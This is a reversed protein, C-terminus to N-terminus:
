AIMGGVEAPLMYATGVVHVYVRGPFNKIAKNLRLRKHSDAPVICGDSGHEGRGHIFFDDGRHHVIPQASFPSHIQLADATRQLWICEHFKPHNAIYHCLYHGPPLTGGRRSGHKKTTAQYSQISHEWQKPHTSGRGGGSYAKMHFTADGIKGSLIESPASYTLIVIAPKGAPASNSM